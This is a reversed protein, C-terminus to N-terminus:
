SKEPTTEVDHGFFSYSQYFDRVDDAEFLTEKKFSENRKKAESQQHNFVHVVSDWCHKDM